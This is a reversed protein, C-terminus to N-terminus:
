VVIIDVMDGSVGDGRDDVECEVLDIDIMSLRRTHMGTGEYHEMLASDSSFKGKPSLANGSHSNENEDGFNIMEMTSRRKQVGNVRRLYLVFGVFVCVGVISFAIGLVWGM